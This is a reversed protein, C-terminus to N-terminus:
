YEMIGQSTLYNLHSTNDSYNSFGLVDAINRREKYSHKQRLHKKLFILDSLRPVKHLLCWPIPCRM